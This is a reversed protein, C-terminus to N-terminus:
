AAVGTRRGYANLVKQVERGIAVPDGVGTQITINVGGQNMQNLKSLPIIAESGAEGALLLTPKTVIGGKAMKPVTDFKSKDAGSFNNGESQGIRGFKFESLMGIDKHFPILNYGKILVNIVKVWMNAMTEFYGIIGNVVGFVVSRFGKFKVMAFGIGVVLAAIGAVVLGIGTANWAVGFALVAINALGQTITFAMTAVKLATVAAVIGYVLAGFGDLDQIAQLGKEGLFKLGAGLGKEGVIDSFKEFIPVINETVFRSLEEFMPLLLTGLNETLNDVAVKMRDFDTATAAATGGVQAEVEGLIIKQAGLVNGSEVLTKIQKKQADTFNIGSKTLASVGKIPNSLAKGLQKAAADTSGFVNGLDLAAMSARNFIDNGKGTENRVQKFTLLLNMSSQIAEDDIGTKLSMSDALKQIDKTTMGAASGTAKIIAETQKSVKQSELAAQILTGGIVGAVGSAIAGFKAFNKGVASVAKNANLLGFAGKGVGDLKKFDKIAKDIGKSDFSSIIPVVIAM